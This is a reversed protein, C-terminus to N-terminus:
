NTAKRRRIRAPIKGLPHMVGFMFYNLDHQICSDKDTLLEIDFATLFMATMMIMEAKAYHRGPCMRAGGGYPLWSGATGDLTFKPSEVKEAQRETYKLVPGSHPADPYVIFREPWFEEVSHADQPTGQNWVTEDRGLNYTSAM